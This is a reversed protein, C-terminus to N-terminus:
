FRVHYSLRYYWPPGDYWKKDHPIEQFARFSGPNHLGTSYSAVIYAPVQIKEFDARKDDWYENRYPDTEFM